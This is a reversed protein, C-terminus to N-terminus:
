KLDFFVIKSPTLATLKVHANADFAVGDGAHLTDKDLMLTGNIVQLWGYRHPSLQKEITKGKDLTLIYVEVDQQILLSKGKGTKSGILTWENPKSEISIEQYRPQIGKTDPIIWIQLFHVLNTKSPNYESHTVGSGASMFQIKNAHLIEETGMSDQHALEGELVISLIEMDKHSHPPFGNNAEVRDENIVRLDRFGMFDPDYYSAFSFTHYTKLWGHDFFKRETSRRITYSM